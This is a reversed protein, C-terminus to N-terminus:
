LAVSQLARVGMEDLYESINRLIIEADSFQQSRYNECSRNSDDHFASLRSFAISELDDMDHHALILTEM